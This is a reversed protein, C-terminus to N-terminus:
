TFLSLLPRRSDGVSGGCDCPDGPSSPQHLQRTRTEQEYNSGSRFVSPLVVVNQTELKDCDLFSLRRSVLGSTLWRPAVAQLHHSPNLVAIEIERYLMRVIVLVCVASRVVLPCGVLGTVIVSRALRTCLEAVSGWYAWGMSQAQHEFVAASLLCDSLCSPSSGQPMCNVLPVVM